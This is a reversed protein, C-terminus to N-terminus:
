YEEDEDLVKIGLVLLYEDFGESQPVEIGVGNLQTLNFEMRGQSFMFSPYNLYGKEKAYQCTLFNENTHSHTLTAVGLIDIATFRSAGDTQSGNVAGMNIRVVVADDLASASKDVYGSFEELCVGIKKNSGDKYLNEPLQVRFVPKNYPSNADRDSARYALRYYKM